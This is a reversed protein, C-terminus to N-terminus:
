PPFPLGPPAATLPISINQVVGSKYVMSNFRSKDHLFVGSEKVVGNAM